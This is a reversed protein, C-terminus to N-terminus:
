RSTICLTLWFHVIKNKWLKTLGIIMNLSSSVHPLQRQTYM